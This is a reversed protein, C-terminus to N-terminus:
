EPSQTQIPVGFSCESGGNIPITGSPCRSRTEYDSVTNVGGYFQFPTEGGTYQVGATVHNGQAGLSGAFSRNQLSYGVGLEGQVDEDGAIGKLQLLDFGKNLIFSTSLGYGTVDGDVDVEVNRYGLELQPVFGEGFVWNFGLYLEDDNYDAPVAPLVANGAFSTAPLAACSCLLFSLLAKKM